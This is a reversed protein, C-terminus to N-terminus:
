DVKKKAKRKPKPKPKPEAEGLKPITGARKAKLYEALTMETM